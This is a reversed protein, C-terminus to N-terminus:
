ASAAWLVDYTERTPDSPRTITISLALVGPAPNTAGVAVSAAIADDILWQLAEAAYAQARTLVSALQKERALLWLRSGTIDGPTQALSDGWWGQRDSGAPLVDDPKAPANLFLSLLIATRLGSDAALDGGALAIDAGWADANWSLAIDTM